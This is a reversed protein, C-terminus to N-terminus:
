AFSRTAYMGAGEHIMISHFNAPFLFLATGFLAAVCQVLKEDQMAFRAHVTGAHDTASFTIESTLKM